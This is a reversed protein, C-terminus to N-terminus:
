WWRAIPRCCIGGRWTFERVYAVGLRRGQRYDIAPCCSQWSLSMVFFHYDAFKETLVVMKQSFVLLNQSWVLSKQSFAALNDSLLHNIMSVM